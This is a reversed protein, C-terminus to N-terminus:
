SQLVGGENLISDALEYAKNQVRLRYDGSTNIGLHKINECYGRQFHTGILWVTVADVGGLTELYSDLYQDSLLDSQILTIQSSNGPEIPAYTYNHTGDAATRSTVRNLLEVTFGADVLKKEAERLCSLNEDVAIV